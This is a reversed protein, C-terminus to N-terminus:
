SLPNLSDLLQKLCGVAPDETSEGGDVVPASTDGPKAAFSVHVHDTHPSPGSYAQWGKGNRVDYIRRNWIVYTIGLRGANAIAYNAILNGKAPEMIDIALGKPHDSNPVSGTARWGGIRTTQFRSSFEEAAAQVHPKVPGLNLAM